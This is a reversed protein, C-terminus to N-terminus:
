KKEVRDYLMRLVIDRNKETYLVDVSGESSESVNVSLGIRGFLQNLAEMLGEEGHLIFKSGDDQIRTVEISM